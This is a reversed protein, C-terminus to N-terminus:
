NNEKEAKNFKRRKIERDISAPDLKYKILIEDLMNIKKDEKERLIDRQCNHFKEYVEKMIVHMKGIFSLYNGTCELMGRSLYENFPNFVENKKEINENAYNKLINDIEINDNLVSKSVEMNYM